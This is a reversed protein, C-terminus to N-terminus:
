RSGGREVLHGDGVGRDGHYEALHVFLLLTLVFAVAAAIWVTPSWPRPADQVLIATFLPAHLVGLALYANNADNIRQRVGGLLGDSGSM